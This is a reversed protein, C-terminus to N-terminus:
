KDVARATAEPERDYGKMVLYGRTCLEGQEGVPVTAGDPGIIKVETAPLARGITSVRHELDADCDTITILPSSETQGYGITMQPCHMDSVVRKMVEIPCPAGAMTGTRLSSFNFGGFGAHQLQAIFM